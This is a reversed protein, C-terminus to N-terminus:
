KKKSMPNITGVFDLDWREFPEVLVQPQLPMGDTQVLKGM